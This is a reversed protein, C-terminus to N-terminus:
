SKKGANQKTLNKIKQLKQTKQIVKKGTQAHAFSLGVVLAASLFIHKVM